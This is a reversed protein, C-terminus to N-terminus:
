GSSFLFFLFSFFLFSRIWESCEIMQIRSISFKFYFFDLSHCWVTCNLSLRNSIRRSGTQTTLPEVTLYQYIYLFFRYHIDVYREEESSHLVIEVEPKRKSESKLGQFRWSTLAASEAACEPDSCPDVSVVDVGVDRLAKVGVLFIIMMPLHTLTKMAFSFFPSATTPPLGAIGCRLNEKFTDREEIEDEKQFQLKGETSDPGLNVM